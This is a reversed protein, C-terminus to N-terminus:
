LYAKQLVDKFVKSSAQYSWIIEGHETIATCLSAKFALHLFPLPLTPEGLKM